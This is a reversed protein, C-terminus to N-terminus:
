VHVLRKDREMVLKIKTEVVLKENPDWDKICEDCYFEIYKEFDYYSAKRQIMEELEARENNTLFRSLHKEHCISCIVVHREEVIKKDILFQILQKEKDVGIVKWLSQVYDRGPKFYILFEDVKRKEEESLFTIEKLIPYHHVGLLEPYEQIKMEETISRIEYSLSRLKISRLDEEFQNLEARTYKKRFEDLNISELYRNFEMYKELIEQKNNM